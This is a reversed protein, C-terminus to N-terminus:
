IQSPQRLSDRSNGLTLCAVQRTHRPFPSQELDLIASDPMMEFQNPISCVIECDKQSMLTMRSKQPHEQLSEPTGDLLDLSRVHKIPFMPNTQVCHLHIPGWREGLPFGMNKRTNHHSGPTYKRTVARIAMWLEHKNLSTLVGTQNRHIGCSNLSAQCSMISVELFSAHSRNYVKYNAYHYQSEVFYVLLTLSWWSKFCQVRHAARPTLLIHPM